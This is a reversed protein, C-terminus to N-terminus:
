LSKRHSATALARSAQSRLRPNKASAVCRDLLPPADAGLQELVATMGAAKWEEDLMFCLYAGFQPDLRINPDNALALRWQKVSDHRWYRRNYLVGLASEMGHRAVNLLM